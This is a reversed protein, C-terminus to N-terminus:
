NTLRTKVQDVFILIEIETPIPHYTARTQRITAKASSKRVVAVVVSSILVLITVIGATRPNSRIYEIPNLIPQVSATQSITQFVTQTQSVTPVQKQDEQYITKATNSSTTMYDGSIDKSDIELVLDHRVETGNYTFPLNKQIVLFGITLDTNPFLTRFTNNHDMIVIPQDARFPIFILNIMQPFGSFTPTPSQTNIVIVKFSNGVDHYLSFYAKIIDFDLRPKDYENVLLNYSDILNDVYLVTKNRDPLTYQGVTQQILYSFSVLVILIIFIPLKKTTM